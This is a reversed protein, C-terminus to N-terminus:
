VKSDLMMGSYISSIYPTAFNRGPNKYEVVVKDVYNMPNVGVAEAKAGLANKFRGLISFTEDARDPGIAEALKEKEISIHATDDVMLGISELASKNSKAISSLESHLLRGQTDTKGETYRNATDLFSHYADLL